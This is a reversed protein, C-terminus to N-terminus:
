MLLEEEKRLLENSEELSKLQTPCLKYDQPRGSVEYEDSDSDFLGSYPNAEQDPQAEPSDSFLEEISKSADVDDKPCKKSKDSDSQLDAPDDVQYKAPILDGLNSRKKGQVALIGKPQEVRKVPPM